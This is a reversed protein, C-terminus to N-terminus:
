ALETLIKQVTNLRHLWEDRGLLMTMRGSSQSVIDVGGASVLRLINHITTGDIGEPELRKRLASVPNESAGEGWYEQGSVVETLADMVKSDLMARHTELSSRYVAEPVRWFLYPHQSILTQADQFGGDRNYLVNHIYAVASAQDGSLQPILVLPAHGLWAPTGTQTASQIAALTPQILHHDLAGTETTSLASRPQKLM